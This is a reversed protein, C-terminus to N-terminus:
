APPQADIGADESQVHRFIKLAEDDGEQAHTGDLQLALEHRATEVLAPSRGQWSRQIAALTQEDLGTDLPISSGDAPPGAILEEFRETLEADTPEEALM